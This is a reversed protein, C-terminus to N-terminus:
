PVRRRIRIKESSWQNSNGGRCSSKRYSKAGSWGPAFPFIAIYLSSLQKFHKARATLDINFATYEGPLQPRSATETYNNLTLSFSCLHWLCASLQSLSMSLCTQHWLCVMWWKIIWAPSWSCRNEQFDRIIKVFFSCVSLWFHRLKVHCRCESFILERIM